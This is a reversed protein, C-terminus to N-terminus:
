KKLTIEVTKSSLLHSYLELSSHEPGRDCKYFATIKVKQPLKLAHLGQWGQGLRVQWVYYGQPSLVYASAPARSTFTSLCDIRITKHDALEITFYLCGDSGSNDDELINVSTKGENHAVVYFSPNASISVSPPSDRQSLPIISIRIPEAAQCSLLGLCAFPFVLSLPKM